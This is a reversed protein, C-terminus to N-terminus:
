IVSSPNFVVERKHYLVVDKVKFPFSSYKTAHEFPSKCM